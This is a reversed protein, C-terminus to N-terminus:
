IGLGILVRRPPLGLYTRPPVTGYQWISCMRSAEPQSSAAGDCEHLSPAPGFGGATSCIGEDTFSAATMGSQSRRGRGFCTRPVHWVALLLAIM